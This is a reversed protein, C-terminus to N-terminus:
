RSLILVLQIGISLLLLSAGLYNCTKYIVIVRYPYYEDLKEYAGRGQLFVTKLEVGKKRFCILILTAIWILSIGSLMILIYFEM